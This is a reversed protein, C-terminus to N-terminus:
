MGTRGFRIRKAVAEVDVYAPAGQPAKASLRPSICSYVLPTLLRIKEVGVGSRDKL